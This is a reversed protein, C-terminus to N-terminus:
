ESGSSSPWIEGVLETIDNDSAFGFGADSIGGASTMLAINGTTAGSVKDVKGSMDDVLMELSIFSYSVTDSATGNAPDTTGKVALVLVPKGDLNPNTSGAYTTSDWAFSTVFTTRAQDLFLERPFDVTFAATGTGADNRFFSVTNGSVSVYQISQAIKAAVSQGFTKLRGLNVLASSNYNSM